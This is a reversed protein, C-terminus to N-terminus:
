VYGNSHNYALAVPRNGVPVNAIVRTGDIVSVSDSYENAVYVYGNSPNYLLVPVSYTKEEVLGYTRVSGVSVKAVVKTGNIVSVTWSDKNAVYVYGNSPNYIPSILNYGVYVEGIIRTGSIILVSGLGETIVYVYGNSPNYLLAIPGSKVFIDAIVKTGNIVSVTWSDKNAVYVYGNSPNYLLAVPGYRQGQFLPKYRVSVEAIVKTGKIVSVTDSGKNAVYVYGNSPNYALAAPNS